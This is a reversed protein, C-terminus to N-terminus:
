RGLRATVIQAFRDRGDDLNEPIGNPYAQGIREELQAVRNGPNPHTSFFEPPQAGSRASELISMLEVIGRPDYGAETMFEFGLRDSELEDDRGYQLNVMQNVAQALIAARRADNPDESAAIGVANVLAAGLQQRALHEAGHRGVVHGVEHGLVGALQAETNMRGLLAATIFVQGGPLAFANITQRDQLLHFEYPYNLQSAESQMVVREGVRDVYEQLTNDPYLGGHQAALEDRAQVGLAIEQRPSLQVRQQEGTVPNETVNGYYNILGFLAFVLGIALRVILKRM